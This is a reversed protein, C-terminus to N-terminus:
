VIMKLKGEVCRLTIDTQCFCSEGDTHVPLPRDVHIKVERCRFFRVGKRRSMKRFWAATLVPLLRLRSTGHVVCLELQGSEPDAKPAFQFGGGECPHIHTSIFWIHNFEVKKGGDLVLYGPVPRALMLQKLGIAVYSLRGGIRSLASRRKAHDLVDHCVAADLGIGSSVAFRRHVPQGTEYSLIGYDLNYCNKPKLIRRLCRKPSHPLRLGRALDNGAGVPIHGLTVPGSFSLGNLVENVTGDGGVVAITRPERCERTLEAAWRGADGQAQTLRVDYPVGARQLRRELTRWIRAGRGGHANPNVIFYYM